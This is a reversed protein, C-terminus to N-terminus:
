GILARIKKSANELLRRDNVQLRHPKHLAVAIVVVVVVVSFFFLYSAIHQAYM